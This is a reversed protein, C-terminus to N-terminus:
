IKAGWAQWLNRRSLELTIRIENPGSVFQPGQEVERLLTWTRIKDLRDDPGPEQWTDVVWNSDADDIAHEACFRAGNKEIFLTVAHWTDDNRLYLQIRHLRAIPFS